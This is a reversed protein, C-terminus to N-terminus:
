RQQAIGRVCTEEDLKGQQCNQVFQQHSAENLQLIGWAVSGFVFLSVGFTLTARGLALSQCYLEGEGWGVTPDNFRLLDGSFKQLRKVVTKDSKKM